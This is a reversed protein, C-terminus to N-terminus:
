LDQGPGRGPRGPVAHGPRDVVADVGRVLRDAPDGVVQDVVEGLDLGPHGADRGDGVVPVRRGAGGRGVERGEGGFVQVLGAAAEGPEGLDERYSQGREGGALEVFM